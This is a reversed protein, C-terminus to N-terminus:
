ALSMSRIDTPLSSLVEHGSETVLVDDEIRIGGVGPLYVGPEVTVVAGPQLLEAAAKGLRPGEHVDLGIGHGLGHNFRRGYGAKRIYSRAISDIKSAKVGPGIAEIARRQAERVVNYAKVLPRPISGPWLVRTLDSVYWGCRAGWDILVGERDNVLADGPDYHPLSANAGVAVIPPFAPGSAGLRQMDYVLRAAVERETMGPRLWRTLKRFAREAVRVAHRIAEVEAADKCVRMAGILGRTAKFRVGNTHKQLGSLTYVDMRTPDFGLRRIALRKIERADTSPERTKRIVKRAYPAEIDATQDFRGDTLLVVASDTVIVSGSEGTFGTLWFQDTRSQVLYGDIKHRPLAQRVRAIRQDHPEPISKHNKGM